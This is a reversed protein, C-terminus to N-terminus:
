LKLFSQLILSAAVSDLREKRKTYNLNAGKLVDHADTSSMREDVCLLPIDIMKLLNTAFQRTAQCRPGESDDMNLPYGLIIGKVTQNEIINKLETLDNTLKTRRITHSPSSLTQRDDSLAVGITKSGLDLGMLRGPPQTAVKFTDVNFFDRKM